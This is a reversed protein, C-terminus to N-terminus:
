GRAAKLFAHLMEATRYVDIATHAALLAGAEAEESEEEADAVGAALRRIRVERATDCRARTPPDGDRAAKVLADVRAKVRRRSPAM